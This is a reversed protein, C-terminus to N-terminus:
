SANDFRLSETQQICTCPVRTEEETGRAGRVRDAIGHIKM